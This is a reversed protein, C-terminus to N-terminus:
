IGLSFHVLTGNSHRQEFGLGHRLTADQKIVELSESLRVLVHM